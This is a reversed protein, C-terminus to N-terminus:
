RPIGLVAYYDRAPDFRRGELVRAEEEGGAGAAAAAAARAARASEARQEPTRYADGERARREAERAEEAASACCRPLTSPTHASGSRVRWACGGLRVGAGCRQAEAKARMEAMLRQLAAPDTVKLPGSGGGGRALRRRNM